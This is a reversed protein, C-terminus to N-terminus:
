CLAGTPECLWNLICVVVRLLAVKVESNGFMEFAIPHFMWSLGTRVWDLLRMREDDDALNHFM